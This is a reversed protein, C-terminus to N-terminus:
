KIEGQVMRVYETKGRIVAIFKQVDRINVQSRGYYIASSELMGSVMINHRIARLRRQYKRPVNVKENVTLGTVSQRSQKTQVRYKKRNLQFGHRGLSSELERRFGHGDVLKGDKEPHTDGSFSLDDAYRTYVYGHARALAELEQDLELCILNSIVPSTPAGTPLWNKYLCLLAVASALQIDFEFPARLFLNRVAEGKVSPFFRFIDANIVYKRGVHNQANTVITYQKAFDTPSRVFGYVSEPRIRFYVAQLHHNLRRQMRLLRPEPQFVTRPKGKGSRISLREYRGDRVAGILQGVNTNLLAALGSPTKLSLFADAAAEFERITYRQKM